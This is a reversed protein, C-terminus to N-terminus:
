TQQAGQRCNYYGSWADDLSIFVNRTGEFKHTIGQIEKLIWICDCATSKTSYADLSELKSQMMPSCQGWFSAYSARSNSALYDVRNMYTRM